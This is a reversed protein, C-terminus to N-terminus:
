LRLFEPPSPLQILIPDLTASLRPSIASYHSSSPPPPPTSTTITTTTTTTTTITTTIHIHADTCEFVCICICFHIHLNTSPSAERPRQSNERLFLAEREKLSPHVLHSPHSCSGPLRSRTSAATVLQSSRVVGASFYLIEVSPQGLGWGVGVPPVPVTRGGTPFHDRGSM